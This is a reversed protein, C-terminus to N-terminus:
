QGSGAAEKGCLRCSSRWGNARSEETWSHQCEEKVRMRPIRPDRAIAAAARTTVWADGRESMAEFRAAVIESYAEVSQVPAPQPTCDSRQVRWGFPCSGDRTTLHLGGLHVGCKMCVVPEPQAPQSANKEMLMDEVARAFSNASEKLWRLTIAGFHTTALQNVEDPTLKTPENKM